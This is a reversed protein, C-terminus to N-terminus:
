FCGSSSIIPPTICFRLFTEKSPIIPGNIDSLVDIALFIDIEDIDDGPDFCEDKDFLPTNLLVPEDFNSVNSDESEVDELM